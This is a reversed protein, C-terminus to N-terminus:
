VSKSKLLEIFEDDVPQDRVSHAVLDAGSNLLAKADDLYFLHAAVRLGHEHARDIVARYVEPAMKITTGLNDDVRIKIFDVKLRVNQDVVRLAEEPTDGTVVTGAIYIRTRSLASSNQEERLAVAEAGEGGLSNVTTVGYRAYRRLENVLARRLAAGDAQSTRGVHGHANIFGPVVTRGALNIRNAGRPVTVSAAPGVSEIRGGRVVITADEIPTRGTGDILRVGSFVTLPPPPNSQAFARGATLLVLVASVCFIKRVM